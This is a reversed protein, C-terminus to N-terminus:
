IAAPLICSASVAWPAFAGSIQSPCGGKRRRRAQIQRALHRLDYCYCYCYCYYDYYYDDDDDDDDYCYCYCRYYCCFYYYSTRAM